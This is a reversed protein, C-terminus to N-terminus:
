PLGRALGAGGVRVRQRAPEGDEEVAGHGLAGDEIVGSRQPVRSRDGLSEQGGIEPDAPPLADMAYSPTAEYPSLRRLRHRGRDRWPALEAGVADLKAELAAGCDAGIPLRAPMVHATAADYILAAAKVPDGPLPSGGQLAWARAMGAPTADYESLPKAAISISSADMLGTQFQGPEVVM